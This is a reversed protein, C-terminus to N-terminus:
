HHQLDELLPTWVSSLELLLGQPPLAHLFLSYAQESLM